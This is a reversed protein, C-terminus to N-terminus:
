LAWFTVWYNGAPLGSLRIRGIRSRGGRACGITGVHRSETMPLVDVAGLGPAFAEITAQNLTFGECAVEVGNFDASAPNFIIDNAGGTFAVRNGHTALVTAM